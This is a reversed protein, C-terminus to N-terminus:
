FTKGGLGYYINPTFHYESQNKINTIEAIAQEKLLTYDMEYLKFKGLRGLHLLQAMSFNKNEIISGTFIFKKDATLKSKKGLLCDVEIQSDFIERQCRIACIISQPLARYALAEYAYLPWGAYIGLNKIHNGFFRCINGAQKSQLNHLDIVMNKPDLPTEETRSLNIGGNGEDIYEVQTFKPLAMAYIYCDENGLPFIPASELKTTMCVCVSPDSDVARYDIGLDDIYGKSKIAEKWWENQFEPLKPSFGQEFIQEPSRTDSRYYLMGHNINSFELGDESIFNSRLSANRTSFFIM